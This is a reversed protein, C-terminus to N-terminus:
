QEMKAHAAPVMANLAKRLRLVDADTVVYHTAGAEAGLVADIRQTQVRTETRSRLSTHIECVGTLEVFERVNSQRIGGAGLIKIRDAASRVLEAIRPAGNMGMREGGSTLIRDAGARVVEELSENLDVSVDFARNFTVQMPRALATLRATRDVDVRNEGTLFGIVVGDAGLDRVRRVDDLMVEFESPSYCFDGGRPRILVFLKIPVARRIVHILGASPTLGGERLACCLEIRDAGGAHAALASEVSDVCIELAISM